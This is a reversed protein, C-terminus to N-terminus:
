YKRLFDKNVIDRSTGFLMKESKLKHKIRSKKISIILNKKM